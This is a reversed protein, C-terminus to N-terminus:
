MGIRPRKVAENFLPACTCQSWGPAPFPRRGSMVDAFGGERVTVGGRWWRSM